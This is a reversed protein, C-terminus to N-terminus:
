RVFFRYAGVLLVGIAAWFVLKIVLSAQRSEPKERTASQAGRGYGSEPGLISPMTTDREM